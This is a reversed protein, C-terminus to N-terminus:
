AQFTDIGPADITRSAVQPLVYLIVSTGMPVTTGPCPDQDVVTWSSLSDGPAVTALPCADRVIRHQVATAAADLWTLGVFDPVSTRGSFLM